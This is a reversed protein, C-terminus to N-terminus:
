ARVAPKRGALTARGYRWAVLAVVIWTVLAYLTPVPGTSGIAAPVFSALNVAAHLLIVAILSGGTQNFLWAFLVSLGMTWIVFAGILFAASGVDGVSESQGTGPVFYLPIHWLGWVLGLLLAADFASRREQLRPLAFGRWGLEEELPGGLLLVRVFEGALTGLVAGTLVPTSGGMFAVSATIAAGVMGLPLLLAVLAWGVPLRRLSFGALLRRIAGGRILMAVVLAAISPGATAAVNLVAGLPTAISTATAALGLWIAWSMAYTLVLFAAVPHLVIM